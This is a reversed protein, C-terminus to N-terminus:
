PPSSWGCRRRHWYPRSNYRTSCCAELLQAEAIPAEVELLPENPFVPTGEPLAWIDGSFRFGELWALFDDDFMGIAALRELSAPSFHVRTILEAAYQQGCALM